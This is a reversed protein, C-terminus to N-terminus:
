PERILAQATCHREVHLRFRETRSSVPLRQCKQCTDIEDITPTGIYLKSGAPITLGDLETDYDIVGTEIWQMKIAGM